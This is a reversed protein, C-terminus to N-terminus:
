DCKILLKGATKRGEIDSHARAVDKLPYVEHIAIELKESAIMDFLEGTYKELDAREAVYGNVIPRMLKINKPGLNLINVPPVAGSQISDAIRTGATAARM